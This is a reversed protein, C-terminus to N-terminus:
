PQAEVREDQDHAEACGGLLCVLLAVVGIRM